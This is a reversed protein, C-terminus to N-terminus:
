TEEPMPKDSAPIDADSLLLYYRSGVQLHSGDVVIPIEDGTLRKPLDRFEDAPIAIPKPWPVGKTSVVIREEDCKM